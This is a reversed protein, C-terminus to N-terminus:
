SIFDDIFKLTSVPFNMLKAIEKDSLSKERLTDIFVKIEKGRLPELTHQVAFANFGEASIFNIWDRKTWATQPVSPVEFCYHGKDYLEELESPIKEGEKIFFPKIFEM